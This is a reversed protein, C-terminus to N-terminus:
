RHVPMCESLYYPALSCKALAKVHSIAEDGDHAVETQMDFYDIMQTLSRATEGNEEVIPTKNNPNQRSV